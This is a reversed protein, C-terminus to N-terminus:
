RWQTSAPPTTQWMNVQPEPLVPVGVTSPPSNLDPQWYPNGMTPAPAPAAMAREPYAPQAPYPANSWPSATPAPAPPPTPPQLDRYQVGNTTAQQNYQQETPTLPRYQPTNNGQTAWTQAPAAATINSPTQSWAPVSAQISPVTPTNEFPEAPAPIASQEPSHTWSNILLISLLAIVFFPWKHRM